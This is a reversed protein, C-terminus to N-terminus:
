REPDRVWLPARVGGVGRACPLQPSQGIPNPDSEM